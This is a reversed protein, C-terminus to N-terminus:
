EYMGMQVNRAVANVDGYLVMKDGEKTAIWAFMRTGRAKFTIVRHSGILLVKEKLYHKLSSLGDIVVTADDLKEFVDTRVKANWQEMYGGIIKKSLTSRLAM